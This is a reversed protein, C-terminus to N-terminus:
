GNGGDVSNDNASKTVLQTLGNTQELVTNIKRDVALAVNKAQEKLTHTQQDTKDLVAQTQADTKVALVKAAEKVETATVRSRWWITVGSAVAVIIPGLLFKIVTM